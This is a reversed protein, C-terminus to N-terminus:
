HHGGDDDVQHGAPLGRGVEGGSGLDPCTERRKKISKEGKEM